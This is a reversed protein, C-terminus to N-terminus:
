AFRKRNLAWTALVLLGVGYVCVSLLRVSWDPPLFSMQGYLAIMRVDLASLDPLVYGLLDLSSRYAQAESVLSSDRTLLAVIPSFSRAALMFGLTGVLVFSPTVATVAILTGMAVIVSVDVAIFAITLAYRHDLAVPTSQIFGETAIRSVLLALIIALVTLLALLFAAIASFRAILFSRRQRPYAMSILFFKREFERTFLEQLMLVALLPLALRIVSLGVGLAVTAPQRASFQAALIVCICLFVALWFSFVLFRAKLLLKFAVKFDPSLPIAPM